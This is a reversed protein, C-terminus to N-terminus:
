LNSLSIRGKNFSETLCAVCLSVRMDATGLGMLTVIRFGCVRRWTRRERVPFGAISSIKAISVNAANQVIQGRDELALTASSFVSGPSCKTNAGVTDSLVGGGPGAGGLITQIWPPSNEIPAASGGPESSAPM